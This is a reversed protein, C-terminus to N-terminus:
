NRLNGEFLLNVNPDLSIKSPKSTVPISIQSSEKNIYTKEVQQFDKEEFSIALELPFSFIQQKQTQQVTIKLTKSAEDYKWSGDLVPHGAKYIWQNFFQDLDKGSTAEMVEQFDSTLATSNQFKKYYAKIGAWFQQDGIERRLM